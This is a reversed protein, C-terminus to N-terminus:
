VRAVGDFEEEIPHIWEAVAEARDQVLEGRVKWSVVVAEFREECAQRAFVHVNKLETVFGPPVVIDEREESMVAGAEADVVHPAFRRWEDGRARVCVDAEM